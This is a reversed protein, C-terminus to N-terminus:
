QARLIGAPNKTAADVAKFSITIIAIAFTIFAALMFIWWSLDIRYAFNQLWNNMVMYGVPIAIFLAIIVPKMLDRSLLIVINETSSGLVKRVGIEKLRKSTTFSTLGFLGLCAIFIALGSFIGLMMQQRIDKRYIMGFKEDLFSYEFPYGPATSKYVERIANVSADMNGPKIKVLAVRRDIDPSIVLPQMNEKLSLFNFDEVVGVIKRKNDGRLINQVWKGIAAQPALGMQNVTTRNVLVAETSDTPYQASFDRGAIIKLGLTKVYQFDAFQTRFKWLEDNKGEVRFNMMDHFGGPEGSMLSVAYVDTRNELMKKFRESNRGIDENDIPVIMTQEKSYGLDKNRVYNMQNMIIITGTILMVSISFQLTVLAHRFINGGRGIKLKGKLADIPSFAALFFAPYCGAGFGVAIIVAVLFVYVRWNQWSASLEYGLLQNYWPLLLQLLAVALICSITTLFVSEGIFQWVLHTKHAGLTKRMGVEKSRELARITSLNMFNICAILLILIAISLFIFIVSKDGHRLSDEALAPEFHIEDLPTLSLNFHYGKTKAEDGMYKEIFEPFRKEVQTKTTNANLTVYTFLNNAIWNTFWPEHALNAIPMVMSFHLSSNSPVDKAVGTVKLAFRKDLTLTKGLPNEDGFYKRAVTETIVIGSPDKLATSPNGKLLPFSFMQFFAPDAIYVNKENFAKEDKTVLSNTTIVRVAQKIADPYDNLLATAYPPALYPIKSERGNDNSVRMVRYINERNNHFGDFSYENMIFIFIMLCCTIGITLGLINILSFVTNKKLNRWAIVLFSKLM